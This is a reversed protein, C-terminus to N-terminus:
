KFAESETEVLLLPWGCAPFDALYWVTRRQFVELELGMMWDGDCWHLHYQTPPMMANKGRETVKMM